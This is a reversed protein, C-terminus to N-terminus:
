LTLTLDIKTEESLENTVEVEAGYSNDLKKKAWAPLANQPVVRTRVEEIYQGKDKYYLKHVTAAMNEKLVKTFAAAATAVGKFMTTFVEKLAVYFDKLWRKVSDWNAFVAIAGATVVGAIAVIAAAITLIM